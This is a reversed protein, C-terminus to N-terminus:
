GKAEGWSVGPGGESLGVTVGKPFVAKYGTVMSKKLEADVIPAIKEPSSIIYEDHIVGLIQVSKKEFGKDLFDNMSCYLIQAATGQIITNISKTYQNESELRRLRGLRTKCLGTDSCVNRMRNCWHIYIKFTNYYNAKYHEAITLSIDIGVEQAYTRFKEAGMGYQFALVCTKGIHRQDDTVDEPKISFLRAAFERYLDKGNRYADLMIPDKSYEAAVRVEISSFDRVVLLHGKKPVFLSRFIKDRPCQQMNPNSASMRGTAIGTIWWSAHINGTKPHVHRSLNPGFKTIWGQLKKYELYKAIAPVHSIIKLKKANFSYQGTPTKEMLAKNTKSLCDEAWASLQQPSALNIAGFLAICEFEVKEINKSWERYLKLHAKRDFGMGNLEMQVIAEQFKCTVAFIKGLKFKNVRPLLKQLTPYMVIVDTAAYQIQSVSLQKANWNSNQFQKSVKFDMERAVMEDLGTHLRPSDYAEEVEARRVLEYLVQTCRCHPIPIGLYKFFKQEFVANHAWLKKLQLLSTFIALNINIMDFVWVKNGGGYIQILRIFSLHPCLGAKKHKIYKAQKGTEIDLMLSDFTKQIYEVAKVAEDEKEIYYINYTNSGFITRLRRM